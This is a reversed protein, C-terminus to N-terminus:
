FHGNEAETQLQLQSMEFVNVRAKDDVIMELRDYISEKESSPYYTAWWRCKNGVLQNICEFYVLDIEALSHGLIIVSDIDCLSKLFDSAYELCTDSDKYSRNFYSHANELASEYDPSYSDAYAEKEEESWTSMDAVPKSEYGSNKMAHGIVIEAQSNLKGHIYCINESPIAYIRELTNTYNFNIFRANADLVLQRDAAVVDNEAKILYNSLEQTLGSTMADIATEVEYLFQNEHPDDDYCESKQEILEDVDLNALNEELNNWHKELNQTALMMFVGNEYLRSFASNKAYNRFGALSTPLGHHLDFGNGVVYLTGM